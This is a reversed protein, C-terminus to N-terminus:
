QQEPNRQHLASSGVRGLSLPCPVAGVETFVCGSNQTLLLLGALRKLHQQGTIVCVKRRLCESSQSKEM